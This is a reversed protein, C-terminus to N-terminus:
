GALQGARELAGRANLRPMLPNNNGYPYQGFSLPMPADAGERLATRVQAPTLDPYVSRVLAAVGAAAPAAFSSGGGYSYGSRTSLLLISEGPALLDLTPNQAVEGGTWRYYGVRMVNEVPYYNPWNDLLVSANGGSWTILIGARNACENALVILPDGWAGPAIWGWSNNIVDAGNKIAYAFSEVVNLVNIDTVFDAVIMRIPMVKARPAVGAIGVANGTVAAAVGAVATGHSHNSSPDPDGAGTDYGNVDDVWGNSDDDIGNAPVEDTNVWLNGALDPHDLQAGTDVIAIVQGEGDAGAANAEPWDIDQDPTGPYFQPPNGTEFAQGTNHLGWQEAFRPDNVPQTAPTAAGAAGGATTDKPLGVRSSRQVWEVDQRQELSAKGSDAADESPFGVRYMRPLEVHQACAEVLRVLQGAQRIEGGAATIAARGASDSVAPDFGVVLEGPTWGAPQSAASASGAAAGSTIM